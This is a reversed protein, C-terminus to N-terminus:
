YRHVLPRRFVTIWIIIIQFLGTDRIIFPTVILFSRYICIDIDTIVIIIMVIIIVIDVIIIILMVIENIVKVGNILFYHLLVYRFM